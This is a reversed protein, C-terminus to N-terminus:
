IFHQFLKNQFENNLHSDRVEDFEFRVEQSVLDVEVIADFVLLINTIPCPFATSDGEHYPFFVAHQVFM